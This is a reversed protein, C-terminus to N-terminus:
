IPIFPSVAHSSAVLFSGLLSFVALLLLGSVTEPYGLSLFARQHGPNESVLSEGPTVARSSAVDLYKAPDFDSVFNM